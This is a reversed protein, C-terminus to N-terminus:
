DMQEDLENTSLHASSIHSNRLAGGREFFNDDIPLHTYIWHQLRIVELAKTATRM